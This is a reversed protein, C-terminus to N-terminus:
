GSLLRRSENLIETTCSENTIAVHEHDYQEHALLEFQSLEEPSGLSDCIEALITCADNPNVKGEVICSAIENCGDKWSLAEEKIKQAIEVCKLLETNCRNNM